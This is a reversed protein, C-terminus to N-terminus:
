QVNVIVKGKSRHATNSEDAIVDADHLYLDVRRGSMQREYAKITDNFSYESDIVARLKNQEM